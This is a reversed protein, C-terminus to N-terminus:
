RNGEGRLHSLHAGRLLKLLFTEVQDDGHHATAIWGQRNPGEVTRMIDKLVRQSEERRWARAAEQIGSIPPNDWRVVTVELGLQDKALHRVFVEEEESEARLGHNFHLVHLHLPPSWKNQLSHLLRLLAVSDSGGSVLVVIVAGPKVGCDDLIFRHVASLLLATDENNTANNSPNSSLSPPMPSSSAQVALYRCLQQLPVLPLSPPLPHRHRHHGLALPANYQYQLFPTIFVPQYRNMLRTCRYATAFSTTTTMLLLLLFYPM